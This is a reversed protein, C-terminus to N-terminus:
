LRRYIWVALILGLISALNLKVQFFLDYKLIDFNAKPEWVIAKSKALFPLWPNLIEGIISGFLLGIVLIIIFVLNNKPM